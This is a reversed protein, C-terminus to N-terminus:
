YCCDTPPAPGHGRRDRQGPRQGAERHSRSGGHLRSSGTSPWTSPATAGLRLVVWAGSDTGRGALLHLSSDDWTFARESTRDYLVPAWAGDEPLFQEFLLFRANPSSMLGQQWDLIGRVAGSEVDLVYIGPETVSEGAALQVDFLGETAVERFRPTPYARTSTPTAAPAAPTSAAPRAIPTPTPEPTAPSATGAAATTDQPVPSPQEPTAPSPTSGALQTPPSTPSPALPEEGGCAMAALVGAAVLLVWWPELGKM